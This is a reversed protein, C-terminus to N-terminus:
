KFKSINFLKYGTNTIVADLLTDHKEKYISNIQQFNYALGLYIFHHSISKYYALTYDYCGKGYGIRLGNKTFIVLPAIIISPLLTNHGNPELIGFLNPSMITQKDVPIFKLYNSNKSIKPYTIIFNKTNLYQYIENCSVENNYSNYLAIITNKPNKQANIHKM